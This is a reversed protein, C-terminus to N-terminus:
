WVFNKICVDFLRKFKIANQKYWKHHELSVIMEQQQHFSSIENDADMQALQENYKLAVAKLSELEHMEQQMDVKIKNANRNERAIANKLKKILGSLHDNRQAVSQFQFGMRKNQACNLVITEVQSELEDLQQEIANKQEVILEIEGDIDSVRSNTEDMKDRYMQIEHNTLDEAFSGQWVVTKLNVISDELDTKVREFEEMERELQRENMQLINLRDLIAKMERRIETANNAHQIIENKINANTETNTAMKLQVEELESRLKKIRYQVQFHGLEKERLMWKHYIQQTENSAFIDLQVDIKALSVDIKHIQEATENLVRMSKDRKECFEAVGCCNKLWNLREKDNSMEVTAIDDGQVSYQFPYSQAFGFTQLFNKVDVREVRAVGIFYDIQQLHILRRLSITKPIHTYGINKLFTEIADNHQINFILEVSGDFKHFERSLNDIENSYGM